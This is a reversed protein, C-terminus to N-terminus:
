PPLVLCLLFVFALSVVPKELNPNENQTITESSEKFEKKGDSSFDQFRFVFFSFAQVHSLQQGM